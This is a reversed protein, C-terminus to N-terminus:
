NGERLWVQGGALGLLMTTGISHGVGAVPLGTPALRELALRLRRARTRLESESVVMSMLRDHHPAIVLCNCAALHKLLPLHREPSGGGGVAFLVVRSPKAAELVTVDYTAAGDSLSIRSM